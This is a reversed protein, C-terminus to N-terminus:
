DTVEITWPGEAEIVLISTDKGAIIVGDYPAIENILLDMGNGYGWIVFNSKAQSADIKLLDPDSGSLNIVDDGSGDFTGPVNVTRIEQLPLVEIVWQGSSEVTFRATHEDALFDLPRTGDYSGITNILLDIKEGDTGYNWVVFNSSGTYTIHVLAASDDKEIDVVADGSGTLVIPQPIPTPTRTPRPTPTPGLTNSPRPTFPVKTNTPMRTPKLPVESKNVEEVLRTIEVSVSTSTLMDAIGARIEKVKEEDLDYKAIITDAFQQEMMENLGIIRTIEELVEPTYVERKGWSLTLSLIRESLDVFGVWETLFTESTLIDALVSNLAGTVTDIRLIAEVSKETTDDGDELIITQAANEVTEAIIQNIFIIKYLEEIEGILEPTINRTPIPIHVDTSIVKKTLEGGFALLDETPTTVYNVIPTVQSQDNSFLNTMFSCALTLLGVM